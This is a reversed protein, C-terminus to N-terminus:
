IKNSKILKYMSRKLEILSKPLLIKIFIFFSEKSLEKSQILLKVPEVIEDFANGRAKVILNKRKAKKYMIDNSYMDIIQERAFHMYNVNNTINNEHRRYLCVVENFSILVKSSNTLKLWIYWDELKVSECYGGIARLDHTNLLAAPAFPINIQMFLDDFTHETQEIEKEVTFVDGIKKVNGFVVAYESNHIKDVLYSTKHSLAIDDSALPSFYEGECWELAENLTACLGKNVRSRFEFRVFRERCFKLMEEIKIVSSDKSGDDIIILEINKYDQDLVSQIADQVFQEHNYCPIVISVLPYKNKM